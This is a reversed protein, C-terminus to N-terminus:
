SFHTPLQLWFGLWSPSASPLPGVPAFVPTMSWSSAITAGQPDQSTASGVVPNRAAEVPATGTAGAGAGTSDTPASNLQGAGRITATGGAELLFAGAIALALVAIATLFFRRPGSGGKLSAVDSKGNVLHGNSVM